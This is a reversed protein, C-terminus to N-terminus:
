VRTMITPGTASEDLDSEEDVQFVGDELGGAEVSERPAMQRWVSLLQAPDVPQQCSGGQHPNAEPSDAIGRHPLLRRNDDSPLCCISKAVSSSAGPDSHQISDVHSISDQFQEAPDEEDAKMQPFVLSAASSNNYNRESSSVRRTTLRERGAQQQAVNYTGMNSQHCVTYKRRPEPVAENDVALSTWVDMLSTVCSAEELRLIPVTLACSTLEPIRQSSPQLLLLLHCNMEAQM